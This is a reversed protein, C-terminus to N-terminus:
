SYCVGALAEESVVCTICCLENTFFTLESTSM